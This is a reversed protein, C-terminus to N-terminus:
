LSMGQTFAQPNLNERSQTLDFTRAEDLSIVAQLEDRALGSILLDSAFCVGGTASCRLFSFNFGLGSNSAALPFWSVSLKTFSKHITLERPLTADNFEPRPVFSRDPRCYEQAVHAPVDRQALGVKMWAAKIATINHAAVLADYNDVYSQLAQILPELDFHHTCYAVGDQTYSLGTEEIKTVRALMTAKTYDDMYRELMRCMHTDKAWYAYEYASCHFTRGSYDTFKGQYLLAQQIKKVNGQYVDKLLEEAKDQEGHAVRELFKNALYISRFFYYMKKSTFSLNKLDPGTLHSGILTLMENPLAEIDSFLWKKIELPLPAAESLERLAILLEVKNEQSLENFNLFNQKIEESLSQDEPNECIWEVANRYLIEATSTPM